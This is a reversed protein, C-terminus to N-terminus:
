ILELLETQMEDRQWAEVAEGAMLGDIWSEGVFVRSGSAQDSGTYRDDSGGSVIYPVDGGPIVYVLDGPRTEKPGLGLKGSETMMFARQISYVRSISAYAEPNGGIALETMWSETETKSCGTTSNLRSSSSDLLYARLWSALATLWYWVGRGAKPMKSAEPRDGHKERLYYAAADSYMQHSDVGGLSAQDAVMAKVLSKFRDQESLTSHTMQKVTDWLQGVDNPKQSELATSPGKELTTMSQADGSALPLVHSVRDVRLAQVSLKDGDHAYEVLPLGKAAKYRDPFGLSPAGGSPSYSIWVLNGLKISENDAVDSWQPVWSPMKRSDVHHEKYRSMCADFSICRTLSVLSQHKSFLYLAVNTYVQALDLHYDARLAPPCKDPDHTEAAMGLLGFVKDRQDTARFKASTSMLLVDFSWRSSSRRINAITDINQFQRSMGPRRLYGKRRLWSAVWGLRTFSRLQGGQILIPDQSSLVMEQIVWTRSFWRLGILLNLADWATDGWSPLGYAVHKEDSYTDLSIDAVSSVDSDGPKSADYIKDILSWALQEQQLSLDGGLWAVTRIARSYIQGMLKVQHSRDDPDSQDICIQDIWFLRTPIDHSGFDSQEDRVTGPVDDILLRLRQLADALGSSILHVEGDCILPTVHPKCGWAYSLALFPPADELAVHRLRGHIFESSDSSPVSDDFEFLRITVGSVPEHKFTQTRRLPAIM